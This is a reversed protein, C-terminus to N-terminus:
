HNNLKVIEILKVLCSIEAEEYSPLIVEEICGWLYNEDNKDLIEYSNPTVVGCLGHVERFWRFAQQHTPVTPYFKFESNTNCSRIYAFFQFENNLHYYGFCPENFGISKMDLAIHYPVFEKNM